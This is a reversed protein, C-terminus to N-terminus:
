LENPMRAFTGAMLFDQFAEPDIPRAQHLRTLQEPTLKLRIQQTIAEAVEAQLKLVDGLDREYAEGWLHQDAPTYVLQASIRVRNGSHLVSGEIVGDVGLERAIQALSKRKEGKYQMVSTRSIIKLSNIRSLESILEDPMADAFYEQEPDGSFNTLPLVALSHIQPQAAFSSSPKGRVGGAYLIFSVAAIVILLASVLLVVSRRPQSQRQEPQVADPAM